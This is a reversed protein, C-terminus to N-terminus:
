EGALSGGSLQRIVEPDLWHEDSREDVVRPASSLSSSRSYPLSDLRTPAQRSALYLGSSLVLGTPVAHRRLAGRCLAITAM